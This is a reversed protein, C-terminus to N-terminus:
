RPKAPSSATHEGAIAARPPAGRRHLATRPKGPSCSGFGLALLLPTIHLNEGRTQLPLQQLTPQGATLDPPPGRHRKLSLNIYPGEPSRPTAPRPM